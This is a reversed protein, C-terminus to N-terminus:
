GEPTDFPRGVRTDLAGAALSRSAKQLARDALVTARSCCSTRRRPSVRHQLVAVAHRAVDSASCTLPARVFLLRYEENDPGILTPTLQMPRCPEAPVGAPAVFPRTVAPACSERPMARGLLEDGRENTVLLV